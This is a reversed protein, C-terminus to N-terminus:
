YKLMSWTTPWASAVYRRRAACSAGVPLRGGIASARSCRRQEGGVAAVRGPDAMVHQRERRAQRAVVPDREDKGIRRRGANAARARAAPSSATAISVSSSAQKRPTRASRAGSTSCTCAPMPQSACASAASPGRPPRRRDDAGLMQRPEDGIGPLLRGVGRAAALTSAKTATDSAAAAVHAGASPAAAAAASPERRNRLPM